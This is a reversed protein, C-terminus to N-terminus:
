LKCSACTKERKIMKVAEGSICGSAAFGMGDYKMKDKLLKWHEM